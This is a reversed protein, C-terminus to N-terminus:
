KWAKEYLVESLFQLGDVMAEDTMVEEPSHSKGGMCPVFILASPIHPALVQTDHGAGSHMRSFSFGTNKCIEENENLLKQNLLVPAEDLMITLDVQLGANEIAQIESRVASLIQQIAVAENSRIDMTFSVYDPVVNSSGPKLTLEGVTATSPAETADTMQELKAIVQCAHFLADKRLNMPTTGAHDQRGHVTILLVLLGNISEVLGIQKNGRELVPGQEIHVEYFASIDERKASQVDGPKYGANEMADFLRIGEADCLTLEEEKLKGVIAKSGIYGSVYRSGEEEMLAIATVNRKPQGHAEVVQEIAYIAALIGYLGDYEGGNKVTDLHSGVMISEKKDVGPITGFLNGVADQHVYFGKEKMLDIVYAKAKRDEPTYAARWLEGDVLSVKKIEAFNGLLNSLVDQNSMRM